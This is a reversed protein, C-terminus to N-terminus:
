KREALSGPAVPPVEGRLPAGNPRGAGRSPDTVGGPTGNGGTGGSDGAGGAGGAATTAFGARVSEREAGAGSPDEASVVLDTKCLAFVSQELREGQLLALSECPLVHLLSDPM